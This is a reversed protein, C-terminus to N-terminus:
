NPIQFHSPFLQRSFKREYEDEEKEAERESEKMQKRQVQWLRTM